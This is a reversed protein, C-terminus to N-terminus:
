IMYLYAQYTLINLDYVPISSLYTHKSWICTHKIPLYTNIMYLYAQYTPMNLGHVSISSLYTHKSRYVPISSLYTHKLWICTHKIPLYIWIMYLYAQYTLTNLDYVHISSLYIHKSWICTDKIHLYTEIMYM